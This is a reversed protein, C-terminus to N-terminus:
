SCVIVLGKWALYARAEQGPDVTLAPRDSTLVCPIQQQTSWQHGDSTAWWVSEDGEIGKWVMLLRSGVLSLAPGVSIGVGPVKQQASWSQGNYTAWYIGQDTVSGKWATYLAGFSTLAPRDSTGGNPVQQQASWSQGNFSAWWIRKAPSDV